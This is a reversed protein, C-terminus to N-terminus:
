GFAPGGVSVTVSSTTSSTQTDASTDTWQLEDSVSLTAKFVILDVGGTVSLDVTYQNVVTHGTTNTVAYTQNYKTVPTPDSATLPPEYPFSQPTPLFRNPDIAAPGNAFPDMALITTYDKATLGAADLDSKLGPPMLSPNKLQAVYVRQIKMTPGDVGVTWDVYNQPDVTITVTPNLWLVFFDEDHNIGDAAPGTVSLENSTTTKIDLTDTDTTTQSISFGASGGDDKPGVQLSAGTTQKFSNSITTTTGTATSTSYDVLSSSKGGNLGPPAYLLALVYYSPRGTATQDAPQLVFPMSATAFGGIHDGGSGDMNIRWLANDTGQFFIVNNGFDVVPTSHCKYGGLNVGGSGDINIRWLKDDTGRFYVNNRTVFPSSTTQYGGLNVGKTGDLALKWLKDDTGQFFIGNPSVSPPSATQYLGLNIGGTGDLNARWLKNDTGQFYIHPSVVVPSSKTQYGGLNVGGTGDLAVSWLKDDTGQFYIHDATVTPSSACKYGGLNVGGTGDLKVKWLKDDTGQFYIFGASAVPTSSTKYGGLNVGGSGDNNLQWLKDDTGQFYLM